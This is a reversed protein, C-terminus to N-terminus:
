WRPRKITDKSLGEFVRITKLWVRRWLELRLMHRRTKTTMLFGCWRLKAVCLVFTPEQPVCLSVCVCMHRHVYATHSADTLCMISIVCQTLSKATPGSPRRPSCMVFEISTDGRLIFSTKRVWSNLDPSTFIYQKYQQSSLTGNQVYFVIIKNGSNWSNFSVFILVM